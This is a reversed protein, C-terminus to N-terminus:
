ETRGAKRPHFIGAERDTSWQNLTISLLPIELILFADQFPVLMSYFFMKSDLLDPNM